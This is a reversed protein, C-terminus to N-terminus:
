ARDGKNLVMFENVIIQSSYRTSGEPGEYTSHQLKGRVVVPSGKKLLKAMNEALKGWAVVNHWQTDTIEQGKSNRYTENTALSFRTMVRGGELSKVEPAKGLNGILQVSNKLNNMRYFNIQFLSEDSNGLSLGFICGLVSALRCIFAYNRKYVNTAM